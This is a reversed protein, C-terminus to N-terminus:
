SGILNRISVGLVDAIAQLNRATMNGADSEGLEVRRIQRVNVGSADALQQQTLEANLRADQLPVPAVYEPARQLAKTRTLSVALIGNGRRTPCLECCQGQEDVIIPEGRTTEGLTYGEPLELRIEDPPIKSSVRELSIKDPVNAFGSMYRYCTIIM